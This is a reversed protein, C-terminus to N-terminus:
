ENDKKCNCEQGCGCSCGQVCSNKAQCAFLKSLVLFVLLLSLLQMGIQVHVGLGNWFSTIKSVVGCIGQQNCNDAMSLLVNRMKSGKEIEVNVVQEIVIELESPM